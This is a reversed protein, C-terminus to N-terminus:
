RIEEERYGEGDAGKDPRYEGKPLGTLVVKTKGGRVGVEKTERKADLTSNRQANEEVGGQKGREFDCEMLM